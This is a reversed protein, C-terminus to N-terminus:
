LDEDKGKNEREWRSWRWRKDKRDKIVWWEINMKERKSFSHQLVHGDEGKFARRERKKKTRKKTGSGTVGGKM